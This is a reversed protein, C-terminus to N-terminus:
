SGRHLQWIERHNPMVAFSFEEEEIEYLLCGVTVQNNARPSWQMYHSAEDDSHLLLGM